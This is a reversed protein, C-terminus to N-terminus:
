QPQAVVECTVDAYMRAYVDALFTGGGGSILRLLQPPMVSPAGCAQKMNFEAYADITPTIRDFERQQDPTLKVPGTDPQGTTAPRREARDDTDIAREFHPKNSKPNLLTDWLQDAVRNHPQMWVSALARGACQGSSNAMGTPASAAPVAVDLLAAFARSQMAVYAREAEQDRTPVSTDTKTLALM